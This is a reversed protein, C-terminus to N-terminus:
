RLQFLSPGVIGWTYSFSSKWSFPVLFQSKLFNLGLTILIAKPVLSKLLPSPILFLNGKSLAAKTLAYIFNTCSTFDFYGSARIPKNLLGIIFPAERM